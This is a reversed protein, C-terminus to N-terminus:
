GKKRCIYIIKENVVYDVPIDHSSVPLEDYMQFDFAPAVTVGSFGKLAKDYYGKGFGVRAGEPTFALGPVIIVDIVDPSYIEGGEPQLLGFPGPMLESKDSFRLFVTSCSEPIILPALIVKGDSFGESILPWIDVEGPLPIYVAATRAKKWVGLSLIKRSIVGSVRRRVDPDLNERKQIIEKRIDPKKM